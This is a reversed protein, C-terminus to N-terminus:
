KKRLRSLTEPTIGLISAIHSLKARKMMEPAIKQLYEYRGKADKILFEKTHIDKDAFEKGMLYNTFAMIQPFGALKQSNIRTISVVVSNECAQIYEDSQNQLSYSQLSTFTENATYIWITIEKGDHIIYKRVMGSKIFWIKNCRQGQQLIHQNKAYTEIEALKILAERAKSDLNVFREITDILQQM